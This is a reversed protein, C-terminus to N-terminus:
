PRLAACLKDALLEVQWNRANNSKLLQAVAEPSIQHPPQWALARVAAPAILNEPPLSHTQAEQLVVARSAALREAADPFRDSWRHTAPPGDQPPTTPPLQSNPLKRAKALASLWLRAHAKGRRRMSGLSMLESYDTPDATAAEVIAADTLLKSPARDLDQALEDRAEWLARVRSLARAGRVKHIGSTRRWPQPRPPPPPATAVYAFEEAAWESKGQEKLEAVLLERLEILLEVDLAAYVLWDHPLPRSSWDAASHQKELEYGLLQKTLPALGVREFNCLRAALETDFLKSPHLELETLCPLDQSAAHLIWEPGTLVERLPALDDIGIPDVLFSGAGSRRLQILYARGSYRFGSARETDIAIPGHGATLAAAVQAVGADTDVLDPVGERPNTLPVPSDDLPTDDHLEQM